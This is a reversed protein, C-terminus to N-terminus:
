MMMRAKRSSTGKLAATSATTKMPKPVASGLAAPISWVYLHAHMRARPWNPTGCASASSYPSASLATWGGPVVVRVLSVQCTSVIFFVVFSEQVPNAAFDASLRLPLDEPAGPLLEEPLDGAAPPLFERVLDEAYRAV